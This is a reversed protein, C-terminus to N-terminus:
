PRLIRSLEKVVKGDDLLVEIGALRGDVVDILVLADSELVRVNGGRVGFDVYLAGSEEAFSVSVEPQWDYGFRGSWSFVAGGLSATSLLVRQEAM